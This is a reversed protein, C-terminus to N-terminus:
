IGLHEMLVRLGLGILILGGLFEAQRGLRCSCWQGMFVGIFSVLFTVAGIVTVAAWLPYDMFVLSMGAAFADVSTALSLVLLRRRTMPENRGDCDKEFSEYLMKAGVLSLLFFIIWHDYAEILDRCTDALLGGALPMMMQFFAFSVAIRLAHAGRGSRLSSGAGVSVALTDMSLGMAVLVLMWLSIVIEGEAIVVKKVRYYRM